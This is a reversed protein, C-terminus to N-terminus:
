RHPRFKSIRWHGHHVVLNMLVSGGADSHIIAGGRIERGTKDDVLVTVDALVASRAFVSIAKVGAICDKTGLTDRMSAALEHQARTTLLDCAEDPRQEAADRYFNFLMALEDKDGAKGIDSNGDILEGITSMASDLATVAVGDVDGDASGTVPAPTARGAPSAVALAVATAAALLLRFM